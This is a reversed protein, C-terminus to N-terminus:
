VANLGLPMLENWYNSSQLTSDKNVNNSLTQKPFNTHRSILKTCMVPTDLQTLLQLSIALQHIYVASIQSTHSIFLM